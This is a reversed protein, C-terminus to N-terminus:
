LNGLTKVKAINKEIERAENSKSYEKKIREYLGLAEAYNNQLEYAFAAKKLYIPTTFNNIRMDAAKLYFKIAEDIKNLEMNADGVAGVAIPAIMEDSGSYKQLEEIAKEFQGLRLYSIGAYYHALNGTKTMWYEDAVETFGKMTKDGDASRVMRGGNLAINFSDKEFYNQAFFIENAAEKEKEPLWYFKYACFLGIIALLGGGVYNIKKKHTEYFFQIGELTPDVVKPGSEEVVEEVQENEGTETNEINAEEEKIDAM